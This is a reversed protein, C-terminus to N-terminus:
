EQGAARERADTVARRAMASHVLTELSAGFGPDTSVSGKMRASVAACFVSAEDLSGGLSLLAADLEELVSRADEAVGIARAKASLADTHRAAAAAFADVDAHLADIVDIVGRASAQLVSVREILLSVIREQREAAARDRTADDKAALVGDHRDNGDHEAVRAAVITDNLDKLRAQAQAHLRRLASLEVDLDERLAAFRDALWAAKKTETLAEELRARLSSESHRGHTHTRASTGARRRRRRASGLRQRLSAFLGLGQEGDDDNDGSGEGGADGGADDNGRSSRLAKLRGELRQRDEALAGVQAVLQDQRRRAEDIIAELAQHTTPLSVDASM